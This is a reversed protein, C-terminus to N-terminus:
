DVSLKVMCKPGKVPRTLHQAEDSEFSYIKQKTHPKVDRDVVITM